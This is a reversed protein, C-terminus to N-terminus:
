TQAGKFKMSAMKRLNALETRIKDRHKKANAKHCLKCHSALGDARAKNPSFEDVRKLTLCGPCRKYPLTLDDSM